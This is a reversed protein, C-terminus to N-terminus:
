IRYLAGLPERTTPVLLDMLFNQRELPGESSLNDHEDHGKETMKQSGLLCLRIQELLDRIQFANQVELFLKIARLAGLAGM